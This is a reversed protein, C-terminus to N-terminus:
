KGFEAIIEQYLAVAKPINAVECFENAKHICNENGPGFVVAPIEAATFFCQDNSGESVAFRAGSVRKVIKAIKEERATFGYPAPPYVLEVKIKPLSKKIIMLARQHLKPTTRVDFTATCSDPFKNPSSPSGAAISTLLGITPSGLLQDAYQKKWSKGLKELIEKTKYMELVAHKKIKEPRSGHGSEGYTTIKLFLNGKHALKIKQLDTPEGLIAAVQKYKKQEEKKFWKVFEKTGSGDLEEKVVFTLWIDCPPVSKILKQALLLLSAVTAKEDSAGLGYIKGGAIKGAFPPYRWLKKNGATVTDVHANFILARESNKGPIKVVLNEGVWLPNPELKKLHGLIFKQIEQEQGSISPIQILKKILWM